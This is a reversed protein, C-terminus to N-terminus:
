DVSGWVIVLGELFWTFVVFCMLIDLLPTTSACRPSCWEGLYKKSPSVTERIIDPCPPITICYYRGLHAQFSICLRRYFNVTRGNYHFAQNEIDYNAKFSNLAARFKM